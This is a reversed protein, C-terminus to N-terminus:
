QHEKPDPPQREAAIGGVLSGGLPVRAYPGNPLRLGASAQLELAAEDTNLTWVRAEAAGLHQVVAAACRDLITAICCSRPVASQERYFPFTRLWCEIVMDYRSFEGWPQSVGLGLKAAKAM